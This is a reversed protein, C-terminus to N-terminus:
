SNSFKLRAELAAYSEKMGEGPTFGLLEATSFVDEENAAEIEVFSGYDLRDLCILSVGLKWVERHKSYKYVPRCGTAAFLEVTDQFSRGVKLEHEARKKVSGEMLPEKVTVTVEGYYERVRLLMGSRRVEGAENDLVANREFSEPSILEAGAKSLAEKVEAFGEVQFKLEAEVPM